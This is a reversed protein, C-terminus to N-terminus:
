RFPKVFTEHRGGSEEAIRKLVFAFEKSKQTQSLTIAFTHFRVKHLRNWNRLHIFIAAYSAHLGSNPIGGAYFFVDDAGEQRMLADFTNTVGAPKMHAELWRLAEQRNQFSSPKAEQSWKRVFGGFTMVNFRMPERMVRVVKEAERFAVQVRTPPFRPWDMQLSTDVVFHVVEVAPTSPPMPKRDDKFVARWAAAEDGLERGGSLRELSLRAARRLRRNHESLMAILEPVYPRGANSAATIRVVLRDDALLKAAVPDLKDGHPMNEAAALRIRWDKHRVCADFVDRREPGGILGISQAAEYLLLIDRELAKKKLEAGVIQLLRPAAEKRRWTGCAEVAARLLPGKQTTVLDTAVWKRAAENKVRPLALTLFHPLEPDRTKRLESVIQKLADLDAVACRNHLQVIKDGLTQAAAPWALLLLLAITRM